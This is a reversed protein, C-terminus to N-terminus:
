SAEERYDWLAVRLAKRGRHLRVKAATVTIGLEDAIESHSWGYVDKLVVVTRLPNALDTLAAELSAQADASVGAREPTLGDAEPEYYMADLAETRTRKRRERHTLATNVAIRHMWTSFKADGRFQGMARWARVFAEQAVDNALDRDTVMRLAVTYVEHQHIRVLEGFAADDGGIALRVLDQEEIPGVERGSM